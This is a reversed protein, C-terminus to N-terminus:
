AAERVERATPIAWMHVLVYKHETKPVVPDGVVEWGISSMYAAAVEAAEDNNPVAHYARVADPHPKDKPPTRKIM